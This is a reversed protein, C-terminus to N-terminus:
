LVPAAFPNLQVNWNANVSAGLFTRWEILICLRENDAGM